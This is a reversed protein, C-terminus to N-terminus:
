ESISSTSFLVLQDETDYDKAFLLYLKNDKLLVDYLSAGSETSINTDKHIVNFGSDFVAYKMTAYNYSGVGQNDLDSSYFFVYTGDDEYILTAPEHDAINSLIVKPEGWNKGQDISSIIKIASHGRDYEEEEYLFYLVNEQDSFLSGDELNKKESAITQVFSWSKLDTSFYLKITYAGNEAAPNSRNINGNIETYTAYYGDDTILISPDIKLSGGQNVVSLKKTKGNNLDVEHVEISNKEFSGTIIVAKSESLMEINFWNASIAPSLEQLIGSNKKYLLHGNTTFTIIDDGFDILKSDGLHYSEIWETGDSFPEISTKDVKVSLGTEKKVQIEGQKLLISVEYTGEELYNKNIAFNFGANEYQQGFQEIIDIRNEKLAPYAYELGNKSLLIFLENEEHHYGEYISWGKLRVINESDIFEDIEFQMKIQEEHNEKGLQNDSCAVLMPALLLIYFYLVAKV